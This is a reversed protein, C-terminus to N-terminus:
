YYIVEVILQLSKGRHYENGLNPISYTVEMWLSKELMKPHIEIPYSSVTFSRNIVKVLKM